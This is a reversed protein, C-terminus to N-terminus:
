GDPAAGVVCMGAWVDMAGTQRGEFECHTRCSLSQCPGRVSFHDPLSSLPSWPSPPVLPDPPLSPTKPPGPPGATAVSPTSRRTQLGCSRLATCFKPCVCPDESWHLHCSTAQVITPIGPLSPPLSIVSFSPIIPHPGWVTSSPDDPGHGEMKSFCLSEPPLIRCSSYPNPPSPLNPIHLLSTCQSLHKAQAHRCIWTQIGARCKRPASPPPSPVPCPTGTTM